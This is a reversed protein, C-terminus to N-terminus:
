SHAILDALSRQLSELERDAADLDIDEMTFVDPNTMLGDAILRMHNENLRSELEPLELESLEVDSHLLFDDVHCVVADTSAINPECVVPAQNLMTSANSATAQGRDLFCAQGEESQATKSQRVEVSTSSLELNEHLKFNVEQTGGLTQEDTRSFFLRDSPPSTPLGVAVRDSNSTVLKKHEENRQGPGQKNPSPSLMTPGLQSGSISATRVDSRSSEHTQHELSSNTKSKSVVGVGAIGVSKEASGQSKTPLSKQGATSAIQQLAECAKPYSEARSSRVMPKSSPRSQGHPDKDVNTGASPQNRYGNKSNDEAPVQNQSPQIATGSEIKADPKPPSPVLSGGWEPVLRPVCAFRKANPKIDEKCEGLDLSHSTSRSVRFEQLLIDPDLREFREHVEVPTALIRRPPAM